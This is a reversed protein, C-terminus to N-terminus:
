ENVVEGGGDVVPSSRRPATVRQRVREHVVVLPNSTSTSPPSLDFQVEIRGRGVSVGDPLNALKGGLSEVPLERPDRM